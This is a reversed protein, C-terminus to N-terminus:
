AGGWENRHFQQLTLSQLLTEGAARDFHRAQDGITDGEGLGQVRRVTFADQMSVFGRVDEEGRTTGLDQVETQGLSRRDAVVITQMVRDASGRNVAAPLVIPVTAYM